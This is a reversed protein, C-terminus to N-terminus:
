DGPAEELKEIHDQRREVKSLAIIKKTKPDTIVYNVPKSWEQNVVRLIMGGYSFVDLPPGYDPVEAISEPGM